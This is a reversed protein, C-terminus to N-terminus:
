LGLWWWVSGCDSYRGLVMRRDSGGQERRAHIDKDFLWERGCQFFRIGKDAQCVQVVADKLDAMQFPEVRGHLGDKWQEVSRQKKLRVPEADKGRPGKVNINDQVEHDVVQVDDQGKSGRRHSFYPGNPQGDEAAFNINGIGAHFKSRATDGVESGAPDARLPDALEAEELGVLVDGDVVGALVDEGNINRTGM